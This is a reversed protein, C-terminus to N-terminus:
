FQFYIFESSDFNGFLVIMLILLYFFGWRVAIPKDLFLKDIRDNKMFFHVLELIVVFLICFFVDSVYGLKTYGQLEWGKFMGQFLLFADSVNESRFFIWAICIFVYTIVQSVIGKPIWRNIKAKKGLEYFLVYIGHLAGWALFTWNAGHWFGCVFFVVFVNVLRRYEGKRNGGLPIYVYDRFWSSLSIHWRAWFDTINKAAYPRKFNDMLDIGLFKSAGIAIDSYGSFDCYIQFSFFITALVIEMGGANEPNSYIVNVCQALNDAIVIKKFFGWLMIKGGTVINKYNYSKVHQIQPLLNSSREIPGAVLQPFYSVFLAFKGLHKESEITGRYVDITYSLTQFTYFSIGVPLLLELLPIQFDLTYYSLVNNLNHFFFDTYKFLILLGLNLAVSAYLFNRRRIGERTVAIKQALYFNTITSLGILLLYQIKWSGYFYYSALLLFLWRWKQPLQYYLIVVLPFFYVFNESNFLM